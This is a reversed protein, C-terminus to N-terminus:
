NVVIKMMKESNNEGIVKAFYIGTAYSSMDVTLERNFQTNYIKIGSLNYIEINKENDDNTIINVNDRTPNPYLKFDTVEEEEINLVNLSQTFLWDWVAQNDYTRTWSDHGGNNYMTFTLKDSPMNSGAESSWSQSGTDFQMSYDTSAAYWGNQYPYVNMVSSGINAIDNTNSITAYADIVNDNFSHFAWIPTQQLFDSPDNLVNTGCIPVAAAIKDFHGQLARWTSGGGSSMGTVYVRNLDIPYNSILYKYLNLFDSASYNADSNQPSIVIAEFDSGQNILKPPGYLLLKSLDTTGNGREGYGHYFLVLPYTTSSNNNFSLPLYEYYGFPAGSSGYSVPTHEGATGYPAQAFLINSSCIVFLVLVNTFLTKTTM